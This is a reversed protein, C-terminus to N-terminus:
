ADRAGVRGGGVARSRRQANKEDTVAIGVGVVQRLQYALQRQGTARRPPHFGFGDSGAADAQFPMPLLARCAGSQHLFFPVVHHQLIEASQRKGIRRGHPLIHAQKILLDVLGARSSHQVQCPRAGRRGLRLGLEVPDIVADAALKGRAYRRHSRCPGDGALQVRAQMQVFAVVAM